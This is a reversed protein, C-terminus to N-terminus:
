QDEPFLEQRARDAEAEDEEPPGQIKEAETETETEPQAETKSDVTTPEEFSSEAQDIHYATDSLVSNEPAEPTEQAPQVVSVEKSELDQAEPQAVADNVQSSVQEVVNGGFVDHGPEAQGFALTTTDVSDVPPLNAAEGLKDEVVVPGRGGREGGITAM